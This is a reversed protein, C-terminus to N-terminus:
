KDDMWIGMGGDIWEGMWLGDRWGDDIWRNM